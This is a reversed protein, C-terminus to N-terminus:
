NHKWLKCILTAIASPVEASVFALFFVALIDHIGMNGYLGGVISITIGVLTGTCFFITGFAKMFKMYTKSFIVYLITVVACCLVTMVFFLIIANREEKIESSMYKKIMIPWIAIGILSMIGLIIVGFIWSDDSKPEDDFIIIRKM